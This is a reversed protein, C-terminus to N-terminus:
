DNGKIAEWLNGFYGQELDEDLETNKAWNSGDWDAIGSYLDYITSTDFDPGFLKAFLAAKNPIVDTPDDKRVYTQKTKDWIFGPGIDISGRLDGGNGHM